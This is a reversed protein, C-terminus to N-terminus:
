KETSTKIFSAAYEYGDNLTVVIDIDLMKAVEDIIKEEDVYMKVIEMIKAAIDNDDCEVFIGIDPSFEISVVPDLGEYGGLITRLTTIAGAMPKFYSYLKSLDIDIRTYIPKYSKTQSM